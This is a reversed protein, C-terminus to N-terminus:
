RRLAGAAAPTRRAHQADLGSSLERLAAIDKAQLVQFLDAEREAATCAITDFASPVAKAGSEIVSRTSMACSPKPTSTGDAVPQPSDESTAPPPRTLADRLERRNGVELKRFVKHLHYEVTRPSIFLM